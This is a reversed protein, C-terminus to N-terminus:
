YLINTTYILIIFNVLYKYVHMCLVQLIKCIQIDSSYQNYNQADQITIGTSFTFCHFLIM